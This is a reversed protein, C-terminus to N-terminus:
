HADYVKVKEWLHKHREIFQLHIPDVQYAAEGAADDFITLWSFAYTSDIVERNTPAPVGLYWQRITSIRTLSEIGAKLTAKDADSATPRMYFLVHHVFM